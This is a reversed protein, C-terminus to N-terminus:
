VLRMMDVHIVQSSGKFGCSVLYTYDSCKQLVEFPGQWFSTLKPSTGMRKRPFYVYVSDGPSFRQWQLKRDHYRKQRMMEGQTNDRVIRHAEEMSEQLQWIWKSRPIPKRQVNMEYVLDLPTTAERGLMLYNPSYGTTDHEASRYAMMLYPLQEDWDTHNKNVVSSLMAELTRNFREVMGDSQPHYPTTHTKEIQLLSCMEKFLESEYQRGQDSHITYPVGFRTIVQEVLIKAVTRAETNPMPFAETWRTFYDSVVLIYRNGSETLPLEGMIDTALRDMPFGNQVVQMPAKQSTFSPKRRACVDCGNIYRRVDKNLGPWYFRSRIRAITKSIGLHGAIRKDHCEKLIHRRESLPVIIQFTENGAVKRCILGNQIELSSLQSWLSRLFTSQSKIERFKPKEKLDLWKRVTDLEEDQTQIQQIYPKSFELAEINATRVQQVNSSEELVEVEGCQGCPLRSMGDANRHQKGPRHQVEMDYTSLVELWRALQGEPSKFNTLWRLSNHDTRLTFKRGYLYHKFYKTFYVVALLEKRTFGRQSPCHKVPTYLLGRKDKTWKRYSRAWRLTFQTLTWYSNKGLTLTRWFLHM